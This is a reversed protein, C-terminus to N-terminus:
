LYVVFPESYTLVQWNNGDFYSVKWRYTRTTPPNFGGIGTGDWYCTLQNIPNKTKCPSAVLNYNEDLIEMKIADVNQSLGIAYKPNDKGQSGMDYVVTSNFYVPGQPTSFNGLSGKQTKPNGKYVAFGVVVILLAILFGVGWKSSNKM